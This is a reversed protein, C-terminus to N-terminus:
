RHWVQARLRKCGLRFQPQRLSTSPSLPGVKMQGSNRGGHRRWLRFAKAREKAKPIIFIVKAKETKGRERAAAKINLM